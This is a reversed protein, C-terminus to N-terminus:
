AFAPQAVDHKVHVLVVKGGNLRVRREAEAPPARVDHVSRARLGARGCIAPPTIGLVADIEARSLPGESAAVAGLVDTYLEIEDLAERDHVRLDVQKPITSVETALRPDLKRVELNRRSV